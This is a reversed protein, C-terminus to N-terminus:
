ELLSKRAEVRDSDMNGFPLDPFLKKPDKVNKIFKCLDPKKEQHGASELVWYRHNVTHCALQQLSSSNDGDLATEYKVTCLPCPHFGTGSHERATITGTIHLNQIVVPGDPSSLPEFSFTASSLPGPPSSSLVIPPLSPDLYSVDNALDKELCSPLSSCTKEPGELLATISTTVDGQEIEKDATDIHIEPCFNLTSDPLGTETERGPGEEAEEGEAERRGEGDKPELAQSGELACPADQIRVSLFHGPTVLM